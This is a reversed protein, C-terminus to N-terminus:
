EIIYIGVANTTVGKVVQLHMGYPVAFSPQTASLVLADGDFYAATADADNMGLMNFTVTNSALDGDACVVTGESLFRDVTEAATKKDILRTKKM